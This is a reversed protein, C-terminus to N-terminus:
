YRESQESTPEPQLRRRRGADLSHARHSRVGQLNLKERRMRQSRVRRKGIIPSFSDLNHEYDQSIEEDLLKSMKRHFGRALDPYDRSARSAAHPSDPYDRNSRAVEQVPDQYEHPILSNLLRQSKKFYGLAVYEPETAYTKEGSLCEIAALIVLLLRWWVAM